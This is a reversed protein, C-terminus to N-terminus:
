CMLLLTIISIAQLETKIRTIIVIKDSDILVLAKKIRNKNWHKSM